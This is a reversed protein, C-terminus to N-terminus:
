GQSNIKKSRSPLTNLKVTRPAWQEQIGSKVGGGRICARAGNEAFPWGGEGGGVADSLRWDAPLNYAVDVLPNSV